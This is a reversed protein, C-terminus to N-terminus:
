QAVRENIIELAGPYERELDTLGILLFDTMGLVREVQWRPPDDLFFTLEGSHAASGSSTLDSEGSLIRM